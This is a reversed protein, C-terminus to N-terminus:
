VTRGDSRKVWLQSMSRAGEEGDRQGEQKGEREKGHTEDGVM